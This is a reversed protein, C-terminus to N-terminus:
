LAELKAELAQLDAIESFLQILHGKKIYMDCQSACIIAEIESVVIDIDENIVAYEFLKARKLEQIVALSRKKFAAPNETGREWLRKHLEKISPPFVFVLVAYPFLEHIKLSGKTDIELIVTEKKALYKRVNIVPTGYYNDYVKQYELFFGESIKNEFEKKTIFFYDEGEIEEPRPHRTTYSTILHYDKHLQILRKCISGKGVGSPGTLALLTGTM